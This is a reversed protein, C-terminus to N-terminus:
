LFYIFLTYLAIGQFIPKLTIGSLLLVLIILLQIMKTNKINM